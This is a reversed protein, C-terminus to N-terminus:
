SGMPLTHPNFALRDQEAAGAADLTRPRCPQPQLLRPALDSPGLGQRIAARRAQPLAKLLHMGIGRLAQVPPLNTLLTRNLADVARIRTAIDDHRLAEYRELTSKGGIDGGESMAATVCDELCAVDRLGLNLGQAGIPPIVHAAEGVLAIRNSGAVEARLGSLPFVGRPGISGVTGLLGQLHRELEARFGAEDLEALRQAVDPREVWVLSSANGKCPVVTLPGCPRHFETSIGHHPRQHTFTTTVACQEYAWSSVGIGAALRSASQRGDAGVVLKALIERGGALQLAVSSDGPAVAAVTDDIIEVAAKQACETLAAVLSSNAINYGFRPLGAECATFTVEPARLLGSMDDILRIGTLPEGERELASGIGVNELLCVSGAFLAATRTDPRTPRPGILVVNPGAQALAVASALGAPGGGVVAIDLTTTNKM